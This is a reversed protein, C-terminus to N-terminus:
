QLDEAQSSADHLDAEASETMMGPRSMVIADVVNDLQILGHCLVDHQESRRADDWIFALLKDYQSGEVHYLSNDQALQRIMEQASVCKRWFKVEVITRLSPICIDARPQLTGVQPTYDEEKLDSFVPALVTWLLNQVHYENDVHWKRAMAGKRTTRPKDEWTWKLLGSPMKRLMTGVDEVDLSSLVVTPTQGRVHNLGCLRVAARVRSLGNTDETLIQRLLASQLTDNADYSVNLLGKTQLMVLVDAVEDINGEIGRQSNPHCVNYAAQIVCSQWPLVSTAESAKMCRAIWDRVLDQNEGDAVSRAGMAIGLLGIGDTVFGMPTGDVVPERGSIVSLGQQFAFAQADSLTLCQSGYGLVAVQQYTRQAGTAAAAERIAEQVIQQEPMGPILWEMFLADLTSNAPLMAAVRHLHRRADDLLIGQTSTM